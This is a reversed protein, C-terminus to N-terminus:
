PSQIQQLVLSELFRACQPSCGRGVPRRGWIWLRIRPPNERCLRKGLLHPKATQPQEAQVFARGQPSEQLCARHVEARGDTRLLSVSQRMPYTKAIIPCHSISLVFLDPCKPVNPDQRSQLLMPLIAAVSDREMHRAVNSMEYDEQQTPLVVAIAGVILATAVAVQKFLRM